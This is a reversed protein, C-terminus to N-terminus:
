ANCVIIIKTKEKWTKKRLKKQYSKLNIVPKAVFHAVKEDDHKNQVIIPMLPMSFFYENLGNDNQLCFFDDKLKLFLM